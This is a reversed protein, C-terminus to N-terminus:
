PKLMVSTIDNNKMFISFYKEKSELYQEYLERKMTVFSSGFSSSWLVETYILNSGEKNCVSSWTRDYRKSPM